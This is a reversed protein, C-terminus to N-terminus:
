SDGIVLYVAASPAAVNDAATCYKRSAGHSSGMAKWLACVSSGNRGDASSQAVFVASRRAGSGAAAM